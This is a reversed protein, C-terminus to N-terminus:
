KEQRQSRRTKKEFSIEVIEPRNFLRFPITHWGIGASVIMRQNGCKYLGKTYSPFLRYRPSIVGGLFPLRIIGGHFHGAVILDAGTELYSELYTPDHVILINYLGDAGSKFVNGPCVRQMQEKVDGHYYNLKLKLGYLQLSPGPADPFTVLAGHNNLVTAYKSATEELKAFAEPFHIELKLEHNGYTYFIPVNLKSLSSLIQEAYRVNKMGGLGNVLDGAVLICDPKSKRILKFLYKNKRGFFHKRHLDSLLLIKKSDLSKPLDHSWVSYRTTKLMEIEIFGLVALFAIFLLIILIVPDM